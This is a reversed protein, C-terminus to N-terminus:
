GADESPSTGADQPADCLLPAYYAVAAEVTKEAEEMPFPLQGGSANKHGGGHFFKEAMENCPFDGVSRLSVRIVDKKTDERLSISLKLGKVMEPMNVFGEADGRIYQHDLMDQRTITFLSARNDCLFRQKQNFIYGMFKLRSPRYSHFVAHYVADKDVGKELLQAVVLFFDPYSCGYAFAGTDTMMGTYLATAGQLTLADLGGLQSIIHFVLETTSSMGPFSIKLKAVDPTPDLHHDILLREAKARAIAKGMDLLRSLDNFDLCCILDAKAILDNAFQQSRDYFIVQQQGPLFKLFDPFPDPMIIRVSKGLSRLYEAWGLCSGIADGDPSRHACLVIRKSERLLRFLDGYTKKDLIEKM